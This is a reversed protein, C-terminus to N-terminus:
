KKDKDKEVSLMANCGRAQGKHIHYTQKSNNTTTTVIVIASIPRVYELITKIQSTASSARSSRIRRSEL